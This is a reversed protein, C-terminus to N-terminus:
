RLDFTLEDNSSGSGHADFSAKITTYGKTTYATVVHGLLSPIGSLCNSINPYPIPVASFPPAPVLCVQPFTLKGKLGSALAGKIVIRVYNQGNIANSLKGSWGSSAYQVTVVPAHPM